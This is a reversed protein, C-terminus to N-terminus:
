EIGHVLWGVLMVDVMLMLGYGIFLEISKRARGIEEKLRM